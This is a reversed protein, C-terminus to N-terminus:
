KNDKRDQIKKDRWTRFDVRNQKNTARMEKRYKRIDQRDELVKTIKGLGNTAAQVIKLLIKM